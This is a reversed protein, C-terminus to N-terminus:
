KLEGKKIKDLIKKERELLTRLPSLLAEMALLLKIQRTLARSLNKQM